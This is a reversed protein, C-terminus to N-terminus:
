IFREGQAVDLHSIDADLLVISLYILMHKVRAETREIMQFCTISLLWSASSDAHSTLVRFTM